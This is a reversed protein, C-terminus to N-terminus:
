IYGTAGIYQELATLQRLFKLKTFAAVREATISLSLANVRFGLVIWSKTPSISLNKSIFLRFLTDIYRAHEAASKLFIVIDNIFAYCFSWYLCLLQFFFSLADIALIYIAGRLAAIVDEQRPLPYSDPITVKNLARLDVIARGKPKGNVIRWIIFVSATFPM